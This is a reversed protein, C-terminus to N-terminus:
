KIDNEKLVRVVVGQMQIEENNKFKLPKHIPNSSNPKLVIYGNEKRYEKITADDGILAVVKKGEEPRYNKVCLVLDGDNIGAKNMSDGSVRLVFYKSGSSMYDKRVSIMEQVNPDAHMLEGCGVSEFLPLNVMAGMYPSEIPINIMEKDQDNKLRSKFYKETEKDVFYV